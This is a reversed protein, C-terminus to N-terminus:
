LPADPEIRDPTAAGLWARLEPLTEPLDDPWARLVGDSDLTLLLKDGPAFAAGVLSAGHGQLIRCKGSATECLRATKDESYTLVRAGSESLAFGHVVGNHGAIPPLPEATEVSWRRLLAELSSVSFLTKGDASFALRFVGSGGAKITRTFGDSLRILRITHDQSGTALLAGDPSFAIADVADNHGAFGGPSPAEFDFTRVQGDSCGAALRRGDASLALARAPTRCRDVEASKGSPDIRLIQGSELTAYVDATRPSFRVAHVDSGVHVVLPKAADFTGIVVVGSGDAPAPSSAQQNAAVHPAPAGNGPKGLSKARSRTGGAFRKGDPSTVLRLWPSPGLAHEALLKGELDTIRIHGEEDASAVRGDSSVALGGSMAHHEALITGARGPDFLRIDGASSAALVGKGDGEPWFTLDSVVSKLGSFTRAEGTTLDLLRVTRNYGGTIVRRGDASLAASYIPCGHGPFTHALKRSAIDYVEVADPGAAVLLDGAKSVLLFSARKTLPLPMSEWTDTKWLTPQIPLLSFESSTILLKGDSSPIFYGRLAGNNSVTHEKNTALDKFVVAGDKEQTVVALGFSALGSATIIKSKDVLLRVDSAGPDWAWPTGPASVPAGLIVGDERWVLRRPPDPVDVRALQKGSAIDWTRVTSDKSASVVRTKDPSVTTMWCEDTHGEFVRSEGTQANWLRFTKDDSATFFRVGDGMPTIFNVHATHGRFARSIGHAQADAAIRRLEAADTFSPSLTKLWALSQNPDRHLAGQAQLLTLDDARSVAERGAAEADTRATVAKQEAIEADRQKEEAFRRERDTEVFAYAIVVALVSLAAFAVSLSTKNRRWFRTLLQRTSYSHAAVIQGTAFRELDDALDKAAQYRRAPDRAMAKHVIALLDDSVAPALKEIPPPPGELIAQLLKEWPTEHYPPVAALLHYLMAGISYIDAREDVPDGAAQEPPMYAPTGVVAGEITLGEGTMVPREGSKSEEKEALGKALGWDIVVTEGFEGVLVNAPKLDRHLIRQSHAYALAQAVTLVHPLLSLRDELRKREGILDALSRGSVLKMAYFPEGDPWRGAEYIPVIAPHQLRATLLAEHVFRQEQAENWVLLEKVAVPRDLRQDRAKRVRGIGGKAVVHGVTYTDRDIRPLHAALQALRESSTPASPSPSGALTEGAEAPTKAAHRPPTTPANFLTADPSPSPAAAHGSARHQGGIEVTHELKTPGRGSGRSDAPSRENSPSPALKQGRPPVTEPLPADLDLKQAM